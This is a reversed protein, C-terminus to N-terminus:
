FGGSIPETMNVRFGLSGNEPTDGTLAFVM